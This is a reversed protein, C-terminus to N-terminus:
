KLSPSQGSAESQEDRKIAPVDAVTLRRVGGTVSIKGEEDIKLRPRSAVYDYTQRLLLDGEPNFVTYSFSHPGDAFLVHLVSWKDVQGEPKSFSVMQGIPFVRFARLGSSDTLRLYLRKQSQLYNAQELVYRRVAPLGGAPTPVGFEQEWVIHGRVVDFSKAASTVERDWSKIKVTATASYRVPQSLTFFPALDVRKTAVQSSDLEFEGRVPVEGLKAVIFGSRSEVAFTLWDDDGGLRLKQGSRNTIRVAAMVSEGQVFGDQPFTVEVKVQATAGCLSAGLCLLWLWHKKM